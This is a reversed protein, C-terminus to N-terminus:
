AGPQGTGSLAHPARARRVLDVAISAVIVLVPVITVVGLLINTVNLWFTDPNQWNM